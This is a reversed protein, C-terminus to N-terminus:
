NRIIASVRSTLEFFHDDEEVVEDSSLARASCRIWSKINSAFVGILAM